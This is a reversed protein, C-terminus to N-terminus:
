RKMKINEDVEDKLIELIREESQSKDIFVHDGAMTYLKFSETTIDDWANMDDLLVREDDVGHFGVIPIHFEESQDYVYRQVIRYASVILPLTLKTGELLDNIAEGDIGWGRMFAKSVLDSSATAKIEEFDPIHDIGLFKLESLIEM